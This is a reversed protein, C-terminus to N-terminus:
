AALQCSSGLIVDDSDYQNPGVTNPGFSGIVVYDTGNIDYDNDFFYNKGWPDLPVSQIYPGNWGPYSGDTATLGAANANLDGVELGGVDGVDRKNPWKETDTALMEIALRLNRLDSKAEAIKAKQRYNSYMPIAIAAIIGIIAIAILLELLTFGRSQKPRVAM